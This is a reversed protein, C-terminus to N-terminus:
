QGVQARFRPVALGMGILDAYDEIPQPKGTLYGQMADCGEQVLMAHQIETEVGEALVPVDLSHGLGIVARVIVMSHRNHDLDGIFARDIKIRDFEFSHLYSLSSYGTGFDDVAIQVGLAKLRRLISVARSFDNILINETVELELRAPNLGTELLISHVLSPLDGGQFQVPSVNVAVSLPNVWTAAERCAERLVWEGIPVILGSEEAIPIFTAPSVIGRTPHRWRVLTEFGITEGTMRVQPQYHLTLENHAIASRLDAQLALREGVQVSMEPEFFLATGRTEAKARYLATDANIMLTKADTGDAPYVAGGITLGIHLPRGEIVFEEIFAALLRQAVASAGAPQSGETVILMFEDGGIRALFAGTAALQMRQTAERLLADGVSHGYLDNVEKFHDLDVSLITFREKNHAAREITATFCENFAARNPLDTLTDYHAMRAIRQEARRRETVDDLVTVMYQPTGDVDRVVISRATAVRVGNGPTQVLHDNVVIPQHSLVAEKNEAIIFTAREEPYIEGITKGVIESRPAGFLEEAARNILSYRWQAPDDTLGQIDKVLIPAPVHEVIADLFKQTRRLEAEALKIKTVDHIAVLRARRGEYTMSRAFISVEIRSGDAKQHQRTDADLQLDPLNTRLHVRFDARVEPPRVDVVTMSLFQERSYGYHAVAADNVALFKLTDCDFVWMPVPNGNFLLRFSDERFKAETVDEHTAVWGGNPMPTHTTAIYRGNPHKNVVQFTQGLAAGNIRKEINDIEGEPLMASAARYELIQRLTTGPKRQDETLGYLQAYRDNCVILRRKADFMSLGQAMHDLAVRRQQDSERLKRGVLWVCTLVVVAIVLGITLASAIITNAGRNWNTLASSMDTGVATYVPFHALRHVALIREQGDMQGVFRVTGRDSNEIASLAYPYSQGIVSELHPYRVLMTADSLQMSIIGGDGPAVSAFLKEFYQLEMTGLIVGLFEGDSSVIKRAITLVWKGTSPSRRPKGFYSLLHPDAKFAISYDQDPSTITPIPWGRSYNILRGNPDTLVLSDVYPLGGILDELRQHTDYGSIQQDFNSATLAGASQMQDILVTQVLDISQFTRDLQESLMTALASLGQEREALDRDRMNSLLSSTVAVVVAVLIIGSVIILQVPRSYWPLRFSASADAGLASAGSAPWEKGHDATSAQAPADNM